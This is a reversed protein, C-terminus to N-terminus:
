ANSYGLAQTIYNITHLKPNKPYRLSDSCFSFFATTQNQCSFTAGNIISVGEVQEVVIGKNYTQHIANFNNQLNERFLIIDSCSLGVLVLCPLGTSLLGAM